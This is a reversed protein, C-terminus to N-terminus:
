DGASNYTYKIRASYFEEQDSMNLDLFYAYRANNVVQV